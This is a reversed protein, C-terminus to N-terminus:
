QLLCDNLWHSYMYLKVQYTQPLGFTICLEEWNEGM